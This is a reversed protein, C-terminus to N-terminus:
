LGALIKRSSSAIYDHDERGQFKSQERLVANMAMNAREAKRSVVAKMKKPKNAKEAKSAAKLYEAKKAM